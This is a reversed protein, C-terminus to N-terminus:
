SFVEQGSAEGKAQRMAVAIHRAVLLEDALRRLSAADHARRAVLQRLHETAATGQQQKRALLRVTDGPIAAEALECPWDDYVMALQHLDTAFGHPMERVTLCEAFEALRYDLSDMGYASWNARVRVPGGGRKHLHVALGDRPKQNGDELTPHKAHREAQRGCEVLDEMNEMFHAIALGVSLTLKTGAAGNHPSERFKERLARSCRLSQDVPVFALVDDGGSYVLVGYHEHVIQRAQNAFSSLHRSFEQHQELTQMTSLVEGIRDGDAVLVGLYPSPEGFRKTLGDLASAIQGIAEEPIAAEKRLEHLRSRYLVTGEFRFNSFHPHGRKSSTDLRHIAGSGCSRSVQECEDILGSLGDKGAGRLWPDVAVRSVSPYPRSGGGARKVLGVACLQEGEGLRLARRRGRDPENGDVKALVSERLGDLSSKPVGAYGKAPQFDRCSRRGALLRMLRARDERYSGSQHSVWAAYFEIVDDVQSEWIDARIEAQYEMFVQNAFQRWRDRAAVKAERAVVDPDLGSLRALVVNAVNLESGPELDENRVPAPFALEGGCEQVARAASKSIESLLYSGFWLDRTRRAASIFEQVPGVSLALLHENM